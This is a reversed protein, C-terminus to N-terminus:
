GARRQSPQRRYHAEARASPTRRRKGPTESAIAEQTDTRTTLTGIRQREFLVCVGVDEGEEYV